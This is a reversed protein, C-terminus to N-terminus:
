QCVNALKEFDAADFIVDDNRGETRNTFVIKGKSSFKDSAEVNDSFSVLLIIVLTMTIIIINKKM